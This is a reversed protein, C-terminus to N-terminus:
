AKSNKRKYIKTFRSAIKSLIIKKNAVFMKVEINRTTSVDWNYEPMVDGFHRATFDTIFDNASSEMFIHDISKALKFDIIAIYNKNNSNKFFLSQLFLPLYYLLFQYYISNKKLNKKNFMYLLDLLM